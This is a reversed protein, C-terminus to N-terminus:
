TIETSYQIVHFQSAINTQAVKLSHTCARAQEPIAYNLTFLQKSTGINNISM